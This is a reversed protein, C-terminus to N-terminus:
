PTVIVVGEGGHWYYPYTGESSFLQARRGNPQVPGARWARVSGFSNIALGGRTENQFVIAAGAPIRVTDPLTRRVGSPSEILRVVRYAAAIQVPVTDAAAGFQTILAGAGPRIGLVAITDGRPEPAVEFPADVGADFRMPETSSVPYGNSDVRIAAYRFAHYLNTGGSLDRADSSLTVVTDAIVRAAVAVQEIEFSVTDRLGDLHAIVRATGNQNLYIYAAGPQDGGDVVAPNTSGWTVRRDGRPHLKGAADELEVDFRFTGRAGTRVVDPMRVGNWTIHIAHIRDGGIEEAAVGTASSDCGASLTVILCAAIRRLPMLLTM